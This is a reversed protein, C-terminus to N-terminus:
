YNLVKVYDLGYSEGKSDKLIEILGLKALKELTKSSCHTLVIGELHREYWRKHHEYYAPATAKCKEATNSMASCTRAVYKDFYEDFTRCSRAQDIDEKAEDMVKQQAVSLKAM